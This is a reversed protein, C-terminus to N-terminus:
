DPKGLAEKLRTIRDVPLPDVQRAQALHCSLYDGYQVLSLTHELIGAASSSIEVIRSFEPALLQRTLEVRRDIRDNESKGRLILLVFRDRDRAELDWGVLDNHNLEPFSALLAPVKSNENLQARLRLGAAHAGVGATYIVCIRDKLIEALEGAPLNGEPDAQVAAAGTGELRFPSLRASRFDDLVTAAQAVLAPADAVLDLRGLIRVVAGLGLGL